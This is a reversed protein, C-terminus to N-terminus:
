PNRKIFAGRPIGKSKNEPRVLAWILAHTKGFRRMRAAAHINQGANDRM